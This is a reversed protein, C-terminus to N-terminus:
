GLLADNLHVDLIVLDYKEDSTMAKKMADDSLAFDTFDKSSDVNHRIMEIASLNRMEYYSMVPVASAVKELKVLKINEHLEKQEYPSILTIKGGFLM